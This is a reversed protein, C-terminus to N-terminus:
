RARTDGDYPGSITGPWWIISINIVFVINALVMSLVVAPPHSCVAVLGIGQAVATPWLRVEVLLAAFVACLTWLFFLLASHTQLPVGHVATVAGLVLEASLMAIVLAFLRRNVLTSSMSERGYLGLGAAVALFIGAAVFRDSIAPQSDVAWIVIPYAVWLVGLVGLVFLRTRRGIRLDMDDAGM